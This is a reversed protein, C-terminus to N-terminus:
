RGAADSVYPTMPEGSVFLLAAVATCTLMRKWRAVMWATKNESTVKDTGYLFLEEFVFPIAVALAFPWGVIAGTAFALTAFLTRRLNTRTPVELSLAFAVSNAYM